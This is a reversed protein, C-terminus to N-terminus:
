SSGTTDVDVPPAAAGVEAPASGSAPGTDTAGCKPGICVNLYGDADLPYPGGPPQASTETFGSPDVFTLPRNVVYSYANLRQGFWPNSVIPDVTLFRAVKPNSVGVCIAVKL